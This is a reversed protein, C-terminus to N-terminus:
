MHLWRHRHHLDEADRVAEVPLAGVDALRSLPVPHGESLLRYLAVAIKQGAADLRPVAGVIKDALETGKESVQHM